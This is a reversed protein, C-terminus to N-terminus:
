QLAYLLGPLHAARYINILPISKAETEVFKRNSKQDTKVTHYKQDTKVTHYKKNKM